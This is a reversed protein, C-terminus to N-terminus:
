WPIDDDQVPPAHQDGHPPAENWQKPPYSQDQSPQQQQQYQQQQQQYQPQASSNQKVWESAQKCLKAVEALENVKGDVFYKNTSEWEGSRANKYRKELQVSPSNGNRGPWIVVQISPKVESKIKHLPGQGMTKDEDIKNRVDGGSGSPPKMIM